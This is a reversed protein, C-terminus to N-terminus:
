SRLGRDHSPALSSGSAPPRHDWGRCHLEGPGPPTNRITVTIPVDVESPAGHLGISQTREVTISAGANDVMLVPLTVVGPPM